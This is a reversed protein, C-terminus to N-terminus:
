HPPLQNGRSQTACHSSVHEKRGPKLKNFHNVITVQRTGVELIAQECVLLAVANPRQLM